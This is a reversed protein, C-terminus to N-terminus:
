PSEGISIFCSRRVRTALAQNIYSSVSCMAGYCVMTYGVM